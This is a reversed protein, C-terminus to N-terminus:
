LEVEATAGRYTVTRTVKQHPQHLKTEAAVGRYSVLRSGQQQELQDVRPQLESLHAKAGRYSIIPDKM